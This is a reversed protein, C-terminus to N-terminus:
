RGWGRRRALAWWGESAVACMGGSAFCVIQVLDPDTFSEPNVHFGKAVLFGGLYRLGIRVVPGLIDDM